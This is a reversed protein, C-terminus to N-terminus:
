ANSLHSVLTCMRWYPLPEIGIVPRQGYDEPMGRHLVNLSAIGPLYYAALKKDSALGQVANARFAHGGCCVLARFRM